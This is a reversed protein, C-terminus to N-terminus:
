GQIVGEWESVGPCVEAQRGRRGLASASTGLTPVATQPLLNIVSITERQPHGPISAYKSYCYKAGAQVWEKANM